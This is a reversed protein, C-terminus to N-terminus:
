IKLNYLFLILLITIKHLQLTTYGSGLVFGHCNPTKICWCYDVGVPIILQSIDEAYM